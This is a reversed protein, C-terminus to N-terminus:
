DATGAAVIPSGGLRELARLADELTAVAIIEVSSGAEDRAAALGDIGDNGQETPVIFYRVGAQRVAVTKQRLGGIAGVTGDERITGTVAVRRGGTISGDTLRDILTLTFALGASPGGIADTDIVARFPLEVSYTDHPAFGILARDPEAPTAFTRFTAEKESDARPSRFRVTVEDGPRRGEMVPGLDELTPTPTGDVSTITAGRELFEAAPAPTDCKPDNVREGNLCLVQAVVLEGPRLSADFGLRRYAVYEAIDKADRMRQLDIEREQTPKSDGFRQRRSLIRLDEDASGLARQLVNLHSGAVTVFYLGGSREDDRVGNPLSEFELRDGVASASGPGFSWYDIVIGNTVLAALPVAVGVVALPVAWWRHRRSPSVVAPEDSIVIEDQTNEDLM